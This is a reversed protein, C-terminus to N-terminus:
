NLSGDTEGCIAGVAEAEAVGTGVITGVAVAVGTGVLIVVGVILGREKVGTTEIVGFRVRVMAAWNDSVGFGFERVRVAAAM